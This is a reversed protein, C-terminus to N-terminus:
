IAYLEILRSKQDANFASEALLADIEELTLMLQETTSDEIYSQIADAPENYIDTWDQHFYGGLLIMLNPYQQM